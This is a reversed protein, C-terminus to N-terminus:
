ASGCSTSLLDDLSGALAALGASKGTAALEEGDTAVGTACNGDWAVARRGAPAPYAGRTTVAAPQEDGPGAPAAPCPWRATALPDAAGLRAGRATGVTLVAAVPETVTGAVAVAAGATEAPSSWRTTAAEPQVVGALDAADAAHCSLDPMTAAAAGADPRDEDSLGMDRVAPDEQCSREHGAPLKTEPDVTTGDWVAGPTAAVRCSLITAELGRVQPTISGGDGTMAGRTTLLRASSGLGTCKLLTALGMGGNLLAGTCTESLPNAPLREARRTGVAAVPVSARINAPVREAAIGGAPALTTDDEGMTSGCPGVV